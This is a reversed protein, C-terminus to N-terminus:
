HSTGENRALRLLLRGREAAATKQWAGDFCARAAQVAQDIDQASGRQLEDFVQGDSPDIVAITGGAAAPVSVNGIYHYQM